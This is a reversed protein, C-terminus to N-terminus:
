VGVGDSCHHTAHLLLRALGHLRPRGAVLFDRGLVIGRQQAGVHRVIGATGIHIAISLQFYQQFIIVLALYRLTKRPITRRHVANDGTLVREQLAQLHVARHQPPHVATRVHAVELIVFDIDNAVVPVTVSLCLYHNTSGIARRNMLGVALNEGHSIGVLIVSGVRTAARVPKHVVTGLVQDIHVALRALRVLADGIWQESQFAPLAVEISSPAIAVSVATRLIEETCRIQISMLWADEQCSADVSAVLHHGVVHIGLGM